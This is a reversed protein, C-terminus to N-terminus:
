EDEPSDSPADDERPAPAQGGGDEVTPPTYGADLAARLKKVDIIKV